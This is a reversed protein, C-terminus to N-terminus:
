RGIERWSDPNFHAALWRLCETLHKYGEAHEPYQAQMDTLHQEIEQWSKGLALRFGIIDYWAAHYKVPDPHEGFFACMEDDIKALPTPETEGHRVLQFCIPM